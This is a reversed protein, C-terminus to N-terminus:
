KTRTGSQGANRLGTRETGRMDCQKSFRPSSGCLKGSSSTHHMAKLPLGLPVDFIELLASCSEDSNSFHHIAHFDTNEVTQCPGYQQEEPSGPSKPRRYPSPCPRQTRRFIPVSTGQLTLVFWPHFPRWNSAWDLDKEARRGGAPISRAEGSSQRLIFARLLKKWQGM